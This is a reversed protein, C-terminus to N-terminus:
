TTNSHGHKKINRKEVQPVNRINQAHKIGEKELHQWTSHDAVMLEWSAIEITASKM